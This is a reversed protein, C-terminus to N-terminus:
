KSAPALEKKAEEVMRSNILANPERIKLAVGSELEVELTRRIGEHDIMAEPSVAPLLLDYSRLAVTRELALWDMM